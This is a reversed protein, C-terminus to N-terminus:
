SLFNKRNAWFVGPFESFARCVEKWQAIWAALAYLEELAFIAL